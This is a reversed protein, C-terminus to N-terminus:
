PWKDPGAESGEVIRRFGPHDRLEALEPDAALDTATRHRQMVLQELLAVAEDACTRAPRPLPGYPAELKPCHALAHVAALAAEAAEAPRGLRALTEALERSRAGLGRYLYDTTRRDPTSQRNLVSKQVVVAERLQHAGKELLGRCYALRAVGALAATPDAPPPLLSLTQPSLLSVTAKQDQALFLFGLNYRIRSVDAEYRPVPNEKDLDRFLRLAEGYAEEAKAFRDTTKLLVNARGLYAKAMEKRYQSIGPFGDTLKDFLILAQEHNTRSEDFQGDTWLLFGLNNHAVGLRYRYDRIKYLFYEGRHSELDTLIDIAQEYAKRARPRDQELLTGQNILTRALDARYSPENPFKDRLAALIRIAEEYCTAAGPHPEVEEPRFSPNWQLLIGRNNLIRALEKRHAPEGTGMQTLGRELELARRYNRDADQPPGGTTRLLEGLENYVKALEHRYDNTAHPGSALERLIDTAKDYDKRAAAVKEQSRHVKGAWLYAQATKQRENPNASEVKAWEEYFRLAKELMEKQYDEMYPKDDVWEVAAETVLDVAGSATANARAALRQQEQALGKNREAEVRAQEAQREQEQAVQANSEALALARETRRNAQSLLLTFFSLALVSAVLLGGAAAVLPRHRRAWRAARAPWPERWAKVPEDALWHEVDAGLDLATAYRKEPRLAMAKLCVAELAAPTEPNTQRPPPFKGTCTNNLIEDQSQDTFPAKGTLLHYLTAGLSYVDSAPSLEDLRGSVQEPSMYAPTGIVDGMQTPTKGDPAPVRLSPEAPRPLSEPRGIVKALGWDVVLTEGYRGLMINGPKLDRHLVCRSHAYGVANCVDVFRGLLQRFALRRPDADQGAGRERHFRQIAEQLNDGRVFRMAYFPRGDAYRGLGYIPVVGPHELRGTIRAELLFRAQSDPDHARRGLIEKLAVERQLETDFAVWVQALGGTRHPQLLRFRFGAEM